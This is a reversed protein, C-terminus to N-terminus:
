YRSTVHHHKSVHPLGRLQFEVRYAYNVIGMKTFVESHFDKVKKDFIRTILIFHDKLFSRMNTKMKKFYWEKFQFLDVRTDTIENEHEDKGIPIKELIGDDKLWEVKIDKLNGTFKTNSSGPPQIESTEPMSKDPSSAEVEHPYYIKIKGNGIKRFVEALVSAWRMEACSLTYFLHFPGTQEMRAYIENRFKQWYSPTGPITQFITFKDESPKLVQKGDDNKIFTGSQMSMSIQSELLHRELYQQAMFIYDADRAFKDNYNMVRQAFYKSPSIKRPRKEYHLGFKGKPHLHPFAEIDFNPERLWEQPKRAEGPAIEYTKNNPGRRLKKRIVKKTDNVIVSSSPDQPTLLTIQNFANGKTNVETVNFDDDLHDDEGDEDVNEKDVKKNGLTADMPLQNLKELIHSDIRDRRISEFHADAQFQGEPFYLMTLPEAESDEDGFITFFKEEYDIEDEDTMEVDTNQDNENDLDNSKSPKEVDKQKDDTMEVDANQDNENDLDNSKSPKEIDKQKVILLSINRKILSATLQVFPLDCALRHDNKEGMLEMWENPSLLLEDDYYLIPSLDKQIEENKMTQCIIQRMEEINYQMWQSHKLTEDCSCISILM